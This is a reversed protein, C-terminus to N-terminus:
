AEAAVTGMRASQLFFGGGQLVVLALNTVLVAVWLTGLGGSAAVPAAVVALLGYGISFAGLSWTSRRLGALGFGMVAQVGDAASSAVLLPVLALAARYVGEDGTFLGIMQDGLLLLAGGVFASAACALLVAIRNVRRAQRPDTARAIEPVSAQALALAAVMLLGSLSGLIAHAAASQTGIRAAAYTVVALAGFKILTTASLPLGVGALEAIKRPRPRGPFFSSRGRVGPVSTLALNSVLMGTVASGLMALGVGTVGLSPALGAILAVEVVTASLASWLVQRSRGLGILVSNAGGGVALVVVCLALLWPLAGLEGVVERPAGSAAAILPVCVMVAAGLGGVGYSLWRADRLLPLAAAPDDAHPAVFPVLGRVGGAVAAVLPSFVALALAMAALTAASQNGLVASGVLHAVMGSVMSLFLPVAAGLLTKM